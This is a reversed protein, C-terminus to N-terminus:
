LYKIKISISNQTPEFKFKAAEFTPPSFGGSKPNNSVGVGETPMGYWTDDIKKNNNEDHYICVAYQGYPINEFVVSCNGNNVPGRVIKIAKKTDRAFGESKNFLAFEIEGKNNRITSVSVTLNGATNNQSIFSTNLIYSCFLGIIFIKKM